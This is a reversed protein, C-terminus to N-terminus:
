CKSKKTEMRDLRGLHGDLGDLGDLWQAIQGDPLGKPRARAQKPLSSWRDVMSRVDPEHANPKM